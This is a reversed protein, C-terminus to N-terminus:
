GEFFLRQVSVLSGSITVLMYSPRSGDRCRWISGPNLLRVGDVVDDFYMHTHGFCCIDCGHKKAAKALMEYRGFYMERHSHTLYIKHSGMELVLFNPWTNYFDNNGQVVAFGKMREKDLCADGCHFFYQADPHMRRVYALGDTKGHNDSCVVIRILKTM